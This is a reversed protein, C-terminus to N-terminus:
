KNAITRLQNFASKFAALLSWGLVIGMLICISEVSEETVLRLFSGLYLGYGLSVVGAVYGVMGIINHAFKFYVPRLFNKLSQAKM